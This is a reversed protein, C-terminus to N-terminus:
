ILIEKNTHLWLVLGFIGDDFVHIGYEFGLPNVVFWFHSTTGLVIGVHVVGLTEHSYKGSVLFILV